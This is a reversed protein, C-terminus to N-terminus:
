VVMVWDGSFFWDELMEAFAISEPADPDFIVIGVQQFAFSLADDAPVFKGANSGIGKYGKVESM